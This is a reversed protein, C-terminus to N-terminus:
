MWAHAIAARRSLQTASFPGTLITWPQTSRDPLGWLGYKASAGCFYNLRKGQVVSSAGSALLCHAGSALQLAWPQLATSPRGHTLPKPLARTLRIEVGQDNWPTPCVVVGYALTSSFCPDNITNAIFCRWADARPTVDSQTWCYGSSVRVHPVIVGHYSFAEYVTATTHTGAQAGSSWVAASALAAAAVRAVWRM